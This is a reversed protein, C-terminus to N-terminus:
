KQSTIRHIRQENGGRQTIQEIECQMDCGGTRKGLGKGCFFFPFAQFFYPLSVQGGLIPENLM